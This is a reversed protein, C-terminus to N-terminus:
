PHASTLWLTKKTIIFSVKTLAQGVCPGSICLGDEINFLAGHTACRLLEGDADLFHHELWELPIGLHPCRNVYVFFVHDFHCVIYRTQELELGRACNNPVFTTSCLRKM